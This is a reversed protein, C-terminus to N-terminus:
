LLTIGKLRSIKGTSNESELNGQPKLPPNKLESLQQSYNKKLTSRSFLFRPPKHVSSTYSQLTKQLSSKKPSTHASRGASERAQQKTDGGEPQQTPIATRQVDANNDSNSSGQKSEDPASDVWSPPMVKHVSQQEPSAAGKLTEKQESHFSLPGDKEVKSGENPLSHTAAAKGITGQIITGDVSDDSSSSASCNAVSLKDVHTCRKDKNSELKQSIDYDLGRRAPLRIDDIGKMGEDSDSTSSDSSESKDGGNQRGILKCESYNLQGINEHQMTCSAPEDTMNEEAVAMHSSNLHMHEDTLPQQTSVEPIESDCDVKPTCLSTPTQKETTTTGFDDVNLKPPGITEASSYVEDILSPKQKRQHSYNPQPKRKKFPPPEFEVSESDSSINIVERSVRLKLKSKKTMTHNEPNQQTDSTSPSQAMESLNTSSVGSDAESPKQKIKVQILPDDESYRSQQENMPIERQQNKLDDSETKSAASNRVKRLKLGKRRRCSLSASTLQHSSPHVFESDSRPVGIRSELNTRSLGRRYPHKNLHSTAFMRSILKAKRRRVCSHGGGSETTSSSDGVDSHMYMYKSHKKKVKGLLKTRIRDKAQDESTDSAISQLVYSDMDSFSPQIGSTKTRISGVTMVNTPVHLPSLLDPHENQLPIVPSGPCQVVPETSVGDTLTEQTEPIVTVELQSTVPHQPESTNNQIQPEMDLDVSDPAFPTSEHTDHVDEVGCSHPTPSVNEESISPLPEQGNLGSIVYGPSEQEDLGSVVNAPSVQENLGPVVNAPSAQEKINNVHIGGSDSRHNSAVSDDEHVQSDVGHDSELQRDLVNNRAQGKQNEKESSTWSSTSVTSNISSPASFQDDSKEKEDGNTTQMSVINDKSTESDSSSWGSSYGPYRLAVKSRLLPSSQRKNRAEERYTTTRSSRLKSGKHSISTCTKDDIRSRIGHKKPLAKETKKKKQPVKPKTNANLISGGDEESSIYSYVGRKRASKVEASLSSSRSGKHLLCDDSKYEDVDSTNYSQGLISHDDEHVMGDTPTKTNSAKTTQQDMQQIGVKDTAVHLVSSSEIPVKTNSTAQRTQTDGLEHTSM